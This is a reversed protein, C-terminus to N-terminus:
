GLSHEGLLRLNGDLGRWGMVEERSETGERREVEQTPNSLQVEASMRPFNGLFKMHGKLTVSSCTCIIVPEYSLHSTVTLFIPASIGAKGHFGRVSTHKSVLVWACTM